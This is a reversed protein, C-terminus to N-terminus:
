LVCMSVGVTYYLGAAVGANRALACFDALTEKSASKVNAVLLSLHRQLAQAQVILIAIALGIVGVLFFTGVCEIIAKAAYTPGNSPM